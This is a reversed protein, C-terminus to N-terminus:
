AERGGRQRREAWARGRSEGADQWVACLGNAALESFISHQWFCNTRRPVPMPGGGEVSGERGMGAILWHRVIAWSAQLADRLRRRDGRVHVLEQDVNAHAGVGFAEDAVAALAPDGRLCVGRETRSCFGVRIHCPNVPNTPAQTPQHTPPHTPPHTSACWNTLLPFSIM